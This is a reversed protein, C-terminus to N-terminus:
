QYMQVFEIIQHLETVSIGKKMREYLYNHIKTEVKKVQYKHSYYYIDTARQITLSDARFLGYLIEMFSKFTNYQDFNVADDLRITEVQYCSRQCQNLEYQNGPQKDVSKAQNWRTYFMTQFVPSAESLISIFCKVKREENPFAFKIVDSEDEDLM